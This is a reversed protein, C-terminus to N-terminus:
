RRGSRIGSYARVEVVLLPGLDVLEPGVEVRRQGPLRM